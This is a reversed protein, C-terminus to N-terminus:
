AGLGDDVDGKKDSPEARITKSSASDVPNIM